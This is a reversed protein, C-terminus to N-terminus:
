VGGVEGGEGGAKGWGGDYQWVLPNFWVGLLAVFPPPPADGGAPLADGVHARQIQISTTKISKAFLSKIKGFHSKEVIITELKEEDQIKELILSEM